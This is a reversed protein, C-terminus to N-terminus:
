RPLDRNYWWISRSLATFAKNLHQGGWFTALGGAVILIPTSANNAAKNSLVIGSLFAAAGISGILMGQRYNIKYIRAEATAVPSRGVVKELDLSRFLGLTGLATGDAGRVIKSDGWHTEVRLAGFDYRLSDTTHSGAPPTKAQAQHTPETIVAGPEQAVIAQGHASRAVGALLVGVSVTVLARLIM